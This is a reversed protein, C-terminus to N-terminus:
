GDELAILDRNIVDFFTVESFVQRCEPCCCGFQTDFERQTVIGYTCKDHYMHNGCPMVLLTQGAKFPNLCIACSEPGGQGKGDHVHSKIIKAKPELMATAAKLFDQEICPLHCKPVVM